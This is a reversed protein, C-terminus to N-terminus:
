EAERKNITKLWAEAQNPSYVSQTIPDAKFSDDKSIALTLAETALQAMTVYWFQGAVTPRYIDGSKELLGAKIWQDMVPKLPKEIDVNFNDGIERLNFPGSEVSSALTRMLTWHEQPKMMVFVPKLGKDVMESWKAIKREQMWSYGFLKGGAGCGFPLCDSPGKALRNYLNRELPTKAWHTNTLRHWNPHSSFKEVSEAFMDAAEALSAAPESQGSKIRTNLPSKEFVNLQYCDVGDIPLEAAIRLDETWIKGKQGPFGFLLDIIVALNDHSGIEELRRIIFEPTDLRQMERRIEPNFTQVGISLRNVGGELCAELKENNFGHVRGEFTIECDKTLPLNKQASTLIRKIDEAELATPTGGGFYLAKIPASTQAARDNWLEFEKILTDTYAKSAEQSYPNQYFMCFLCRSECFPIHVYAIGETKRAEFSKKELFNRASNWLMPIGFPGAHVTAKAPFAKHLADSEEAFFASYSKKKILLNKLLQVGMEFSAM